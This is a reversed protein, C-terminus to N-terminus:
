KLLLIPLDEQIYPSVSIGFVLCDKLRLHLYLNFVNRIKKIELVDLIYIHVRTDTISISQSTSSCVKLYM